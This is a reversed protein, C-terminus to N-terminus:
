KEFLRVGEYKHLTNTLSEQLRTIDSEKVWPKNFNEFVEFQPTAICLPYDLLLDSGIFHAVSCLALHCKEIHGFTINAETDNLRARNNQDAAHAIFKSAITQVNACCGLHNSARHILDVPLSEDRAGTINYSKDVIRLLSDFLSHRQESLHFPQRQVWHAGSGRKMMEANHKERDPKPDFPLGDHCVFNERTFLEFNEKVDRLLRKLTITDGRHDEDYLRRIAMFQNAVYSKHLYWFATPSVAVSSDENEAAIKSALNISEFIAHDFIMEDIQKHISHVEDTTQWEEWVRRRERFRALSEKDSVDCSCIDPLEKAPLTM